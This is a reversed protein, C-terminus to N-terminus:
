SRTSSLHGEYPMLSRLTYLELLSKELEKFNLVFDGDRILNDPLINNLLEINEKPFDWIVSHKLYHFDLQAPRTSNTAALHKVM